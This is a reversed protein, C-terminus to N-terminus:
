SVTQEVEVEVWTCFEAQATDDLAFAVSNRPTPVDEGSTRMLEVHMQMAEAINARTREVTKGAAVCGPLDPVDASFGTPTRRILVFYRM